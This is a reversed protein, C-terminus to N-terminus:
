YAQEAFEVPRAAKRLGDRYADAMGCHIAELPNSPQPADIRPGERAGARRTPTKASVTELVHLPPDPRTGTTALDGRASARSGARGLFSGLEGAGNVAVDRVCEAHELAGRVDDRIRRMVRAIDRVGCEVADALLLELEHRPCGTVKGRSM